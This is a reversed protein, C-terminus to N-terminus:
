IKFTMPIFMSSKGQRMFIVSNTDSHILPENLAFGRCALCCFVFSCLSQHFHAKVHTCTKSGSALNEWARKIHEWQPPNCGQKPVFYTKRERQARLSSLNQMSKTHAQYCSFLLATSRTPLICNCMYICNCM